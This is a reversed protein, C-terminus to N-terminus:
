EPHEAHANSNDNMNNLPFTCIIKNAPNKKEPLSLYIFSSSVIANM